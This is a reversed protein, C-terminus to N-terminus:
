VDKFSNSKLFTELPSSKCDETSPIFKTNSMKQLVFDNFYAYNIQNLITEFEEFFYNQRM